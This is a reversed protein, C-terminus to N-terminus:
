YLAPSVLSAWSIAEFPPRKGMPLCAVDPKIVRPVFCVPYVEGAILFTAVGPGAEAASLFLGSVISEKTPSGAKIESPLLEEGYVVIFAAVHNQIKSLAGGLIM